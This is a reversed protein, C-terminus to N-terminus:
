KPRNSLDKAAPIVEFRAAGTNVMGDRTYVNVDEPPTELLQIAYAFPGKGRWGTRYVRAIFGLLYLDQWKGNYPHGPESIPLACTQVGTM